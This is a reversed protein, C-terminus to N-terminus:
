ANFLAKESNDAKPNTSGKLCFYVIESKPKGLIASVLELEWANADSLTITINKSEM